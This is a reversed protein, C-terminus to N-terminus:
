DIVKLSNVVTNFMTEYGDYCEPDCRCTVIWVTMGDMLCLQMAKIIKNPAGIASFVHKIADIGNVTVNETSISTYNGLMNLSIQQEAFLEDLTMAESLEGKVVNISETVNGCSSDPRFIVLMRQPVEEDPLKNWDHPHSITFGNAEDTYETYGSSGCCSAALLPVVILFSLMFKWLKM